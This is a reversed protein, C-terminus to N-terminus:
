VAAGRLPVPGGLLLWRAAQQGSALGDEHFGHGLWAGCFWSRRQGQIQAVRQQAAIAAADLVPHEFELQRIVHEPQPARLPNLSVMVPTPWPLPQLRNLLYHLCVGAADGPGSSEHNWAAWARPRTPLLGTDTHLVANNRQYRIAGLLQTETATADDGLLRLTQDSHGAFIVQDFRETGEATRIWVGDIQRQVGLVPTNCRADAVSALLRQVYSRSGGVVSRWQPRDVLQLLGHNHCFRLLTALPFALMQQRPCSWISAIMPLLYWDRFERSFHHSHLFGAVTLDRRETLAVATAAVAGARAQDDDRLRGQALRNFRVIDALMRWFGPRAVNAAQAFVAGLHRGSWEIHEDRVQVSLSMESAATAVGLEALLKTFRPYTRENYVLFGTDVPHSIGGLEVMVTRAHGGFTRGAEFLTLRHGAGALSLERAAGLGSIGSGIIAIRQLPNDPAPQNLASHTTTLRQFRPESRRM